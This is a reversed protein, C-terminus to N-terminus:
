GCFASCRETSDIVPALLLSDHRTFQIGGIVIMQKWRYRLDLMIEVMSLIRAVPRRVSDNRSIDGARALPAGIVM